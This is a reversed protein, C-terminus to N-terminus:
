LIIMESQPLQSLHLLAKVHWFYFKNMNFVFCAFGAWVLFLLVCLYRLDSSEM